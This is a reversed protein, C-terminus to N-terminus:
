PSSAVYPLYIFYEVEGAPPTATPTSTATSEATATPTDTPVATATSTSTPTDTPVATSTPTNTAIATNTPSPTSTPGATPTNTPTATNTATPGGPTNTPTPTAGIVGSLDISFFGDGIGTGIGNRMTAVFYFMGSDSLYADDNGFTNIFADDDPLGNGNIDIPDNERVIVTSNNLVMVGNSPTPGDSVGAIVYDGVSNGVHIFFTDAFETDTFNETAGIHIPSGSAAIVTGNSYVWDQETLDNNGRVYWNGSADMHVGVIGNLDVPESFGSGPLIVGEQVVVAGNVAVVDDTNIDGTLDGQAIWNSGDASIHFLHLDFNEWFETGIQGTPVTVGEQGLVTSGLVLIDDETTPVGGIIDSSFGVTGDSAIVATELTSGWTTGPLTPLTTSMGEQAAITFTITDYHVIYEDATTAGDTNTGFVFEGADNVGVKTELLGVNEGPAWTAATGERVEVVNNVILVEDEAIPLDTDATLIWNGNPSGFVRDFSQFEAGPLGPVSASPDGTLDTYIVNIVLPGTEVSASTSGALSILSWIAGTVVLVLFMLEKFSKISSSLKRM